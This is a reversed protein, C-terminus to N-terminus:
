LKEMFKEYVIGQRELIRYIIKEKKNIREIIEPTLLQSRDPSKRKSVNVKKQGDIVSLEQETFNMQSLFEKLDTNLNEQRLFHIGAFDDFVKESNIYEDSLNRIVEDPNKFFMQIFQISLIGIDTNRVEHGVFYPVAMDVLDLYETFTLDPYHPFANKIIEMPCPPNRVWSEWDYRSLYASIPNRVISFIKKQKHENPIQEYTGHQDIVGKNGVNTKVKINEVLYDQFLPPKSNTWISIKHKLPLKKFRKSYIDKICKRAYTSGTKPLNLMVFQDTIIM